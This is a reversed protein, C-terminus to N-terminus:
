SQAFNHHTSRNAVQAHQTVDGYGTIHAPLEKLVNKLGHFNILSPDKSRKASKQWANIFLLIDEQAMGYSDNSVLEYSDVVVKTDFPDFHAVRLSFESEPM